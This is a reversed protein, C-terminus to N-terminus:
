LVMRGILVGAVVAIGISKWPNAKVYESTTAMLREQTERWDQGHADLWDAAPAAAGAAKDVVEHAYGVVRDIAPKTRRAAEDALNAARDVASHASQQAKNLTTDATTGSSSMNNFGATKNEM